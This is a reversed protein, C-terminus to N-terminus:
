GDVTDSDVTDQANVADGDMTEAFATGCEIKTTLDVTGAGGGLGDTGAAGGAAAGSSGGAGTADGSGAM